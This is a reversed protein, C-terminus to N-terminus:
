SSLLDTYIRRPRAVTISTLGDYALVGAESYGVTSRPSDYSKKNLRIVGRSFALPKTKTFSLFISFLCQIIAASEKNRRADSRSDAQASGAGSGAGVGAGDGAGSGSGSGSVGGGGGTSITSWSPLVTVRAVM